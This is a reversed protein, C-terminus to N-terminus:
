AAVDVISLHDRLFLRNVGTYSDCVDVLTHYSGNAIGEPITYKGRETWKGFPTRLQSPAADDGGHGGEILSLQDIDMPAGAGLTYRQSNRQVVM